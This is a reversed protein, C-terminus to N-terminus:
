LFDFETCGIGCLIGFSVKTLINHWQRKRTLGELKIHLLDDSASQQGLQNTTHM